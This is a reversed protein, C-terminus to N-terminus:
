VGAAPTMARLGIRNSKLGMQTRHLYEVFDENLLSMAGPNEILERAEASGALFSQITRDWSRWYRRDTESAKRINHTHYDAWVTEFLNLHYWLFARRRCAELPTDRFDPGIAQADWVAWLQPQAIMQRNIDFLANMYNNRSVYRLTALNYRRTWFFAVAVSVGIATASLVITLIDKILM